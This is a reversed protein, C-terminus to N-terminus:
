QEASLSPAGRELTAPKVMQLSTIELNKEFLPSSDSILRHLTVSEM